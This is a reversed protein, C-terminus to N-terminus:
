TVEIILENFALFANPEVAMEFLKEFIHFFQSLLCIKNKALMEMLLGIYGLMELFLLHLEKNWLHHGPGTYCSGVLKVAVSWDWKYIIRLFIDSNKRSDKREFFENFVDALNINDLINKHVHMLM